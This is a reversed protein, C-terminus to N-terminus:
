WPHWAGPELGKARRMPSPRGEGPADRRGGRHKRHRGDVRRRPVHSSWHFSFIPKM